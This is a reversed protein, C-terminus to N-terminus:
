SLKSNKLQETKLNPHQIPQFSTIVRQSELQRMRCELESIKQMCYDLKTQLALPTPKFSGDPGFPHFPISM